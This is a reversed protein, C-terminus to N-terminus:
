SLVKLTLKITGLDKNFFSYFGYPVGCGCNECDVKGMVCPIKRKGMPDLSIVAKRIICNKGIVKSCNNSKMLEIMNDSLLIFDPYEKKLQKIKNLIKDRKSLPIFLDDNERLPTYFDFNIGKVNTGFWEKVLDDICFYNKSNLVVGLFVKNKTNIVNAKTKEYTGKGRIMEHYKKTGDISVFVNCNRFNPIELTGNTIIWNFDFFKSGKKILNPRLLPEGGVWSCWFLNYSKTMKKLKNIWAKESLEQQYNAEKFYCHICNLNCRYTVDISVAFPYCLEKNRLLKFCKTVLSLFKKM